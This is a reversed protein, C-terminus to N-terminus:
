RRASRADVDLQELHTLRLVLKSRYHCVLVAVDVAPVHLLSRSALLCERKAESAAPPAPYTAPPESCPPRYLREHLRHLGTAPEDVHPEGAVVFGLGVVEPELEIRPGTPVGIMEGVEELVHDRGPYSLPEAMVLSWGVSLLRTSALPSDMLLIGLTDGSKALGVDRRLLPKILELLVGEARMFPELRGSLEGPWSGGGPPALSSSGRVLRFVLFFGLLPDNLKLAGAPALACRPLGTTRCGSSRAQGIVNSFDLKELRLTSDSPLIDPMPGNADVGGLTARDPQDM